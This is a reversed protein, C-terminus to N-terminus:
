ENHKSNNEEEANLKEADIKAQEADQYEQVLDPLLKEVDDTSRFGTFLKDEIIIAPLKTDEVKYISIMARLASLDLNYDFSYVRLDSYKQRLDTLVYGQKTCESCNKATTYFYLISYTKTNCRENIKKMLLFDKIELLSYFKKLEIVDNNTNGINEESYSIKEALSNLEQSLNSRSVDQCSLESLLSFQTESSLIDISIKDQISKVQDIKKNNLYGALSVAGIFLFVTIFLVIIYKKTDLQGM